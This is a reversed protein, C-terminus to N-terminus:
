GKKKARFMGYGMLGDEFARHFRDLCIGDRLTKYWIWPRRVVPWPDYVGVWISHRWSAITQEWWDETHINELVGTNVMHDAYNEISIFHPHTWEGELYDLRKLDSRSFADTSNSRHCWTAVVMLGGPKLVRAMEEIYKEKDPMHEGSECAWVMDFANDPYKMELADMVEFKANSLGAEEALATARSVQKPSLTIGTVTSETGLSRALYRSTGGIGCGVDLVNAPPKALGNLGSFAMMRDIFDYKAQIFNKKKYGEKMEQASYWGLHIHEGWYHELVGDETWADYEAGVTNKERNYRRQPTDLVRYAVAATAAIGLVPAVPVGGITVEKLAKAAKPVLTM